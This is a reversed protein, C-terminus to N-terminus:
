TGADKGGIGAVYGDALLVTVRKGDFPLLKKVRTENVKLRRVREGDDLLLVRFRISNKIRMREGTVKLTGTLSSRPTEAQRAAHDLEFRTERLGFLRRYIVLWGGVCSCILAAPETWEVSRLDTLCCFLVCLALTVGALGWVWARERKIKKELRLLDEPRYMECITDM